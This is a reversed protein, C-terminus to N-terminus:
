KMFFALRSSYSAVGAVLLPFLVFTVSVMMAVDKAVSRM